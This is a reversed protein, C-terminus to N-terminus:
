VTGFDLRFPLFRDTGDFKVAHIWDIHFSFEGECREAM